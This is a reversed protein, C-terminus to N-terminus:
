NSPQVAYSTEENLQRLVGIFGPTLRHATLRALAEADGGIRVEGSLFAQELVDAGEVWAKSTEYPLSVSIDATTLPGLALDMLSGHVVSCHYIVDGDPAGYVLFQATYSLGPENVRSGLARFRACWEASLYDM